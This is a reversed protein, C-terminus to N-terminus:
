QRYKVLSLSGKRGVRHSRQYQTVATNSLSSFVVVYYRYRVARRLRSRGALWGTPPRCWVSRNDIPLSMSIHVSASSPPPRSVSPRVPPKTCLFLNCRPRALRNSRRLSYISRRRRRRRDCISSSDRICM